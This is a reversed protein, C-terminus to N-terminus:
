NRNISSTFAPGGYWADTAGEEPRPLNFFAPSHIPLGLGRAVFVERQLGPSTEWGTLPLVLVSDAVRQLIRLSYNRWFDRGLSEAQDVAYGLLCTAVAAVKQEILASCCDRVITTRLRRIDPSPDWYPHAIYLMPPAHYHSM